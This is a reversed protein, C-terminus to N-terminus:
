AELELIWKPIMGAYAPCIYSNNIGPYGFPSWGRMRPVFEVPYAKGFDITPDDGCVRSLHPFLKPSLMGVPIMGAYAPCIPYIQDHIPWSRSWGRMRPVFWFIVFFSCLEIPDDGCVRSLYKFPFTLLTKTLIMGAYAPCIVREKGGIAILLFWGRMRPVFQATRRKGTRFTPDDGCVRSLYSSNYEISKSKLIM